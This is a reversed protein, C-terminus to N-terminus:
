ACLALPCSKMNTQMFRLKYGDDFFFVDESSGFDRAQWALAVVKASEDVHLVQAAYSQEPKLIAILVENLAEAAAEQPQFVLHKDAEVVHVHWEFDAALFPRFNGNPVAVANFSDWVTAMTQEGALSLAPEPRPAWLARHSAPLVLLGGGLAGACLLTALVVNPSPRWAPARVDKGLLPEPSSSAM